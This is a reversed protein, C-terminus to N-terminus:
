QLQKPIKFGLMGIHTYATLHLHPANFAIKHLQIGRYEIPADLQFTVAIHGDCDYQHASYGITMRPLEWVGWNVTCLYRMVTYLNDINTEIGNPSTALLQNYEQEIKEIQKQATRVQEQIAQQRQANRENILQELTLDTDIANDLIAQIGGYASIFMGANPISNIGDNTLFLTGDPNLRVEILQKKTRLYKM